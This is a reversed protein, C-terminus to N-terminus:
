NFNFWNESSDTSTLAPTITMMTKADNVKITYTNGNVMIKNSGIVTYTYTKITENVYTSKFNYDIDSTSFDLVLTYYTGDNSEVRQWDRLLENKLATTGSSGSPYNPIPTYSGKYDDDDDDNVDIDVDDEVDEGASAIVGILIVGGIVAGVLLFFAVVCAVIIIVAKSSSKKPQPQEPQPNPNHQSYQVQQIPQPPQPATDFKAGCNSCFASNDPIQMGCNPCFMTFRRKM